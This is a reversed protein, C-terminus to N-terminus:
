IGKDNPREVASRLAPTMPFNLNIGKPPIPATFWKAYLAEFQGDRMMGVLTRDVLAKFAPDDRRVILGYPQSSLTDNIIRWDEPRPSSAIVSALLIDDGVFAETRGTTLALFSGGHDPSIFNRTTFGKDKGRANLFGISTAGATQSIQKDKLDEFTKVPSGVPVAARITSVFITTSFAVVRHREITNHAPGCAIDITDNNILPIQTGLQIPQMKTRLTPLKLEAKVADVIRECLDVAFGIPKQRDDLYSFPVSVERYGLTIEGTDAIKRLTDAHAAGVSVTVAVAIRLLWPHAM